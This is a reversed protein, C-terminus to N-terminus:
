MGRLYAVGQAKDVYIGGASIVMKKVTQYPLDALDVEETTTPASEAPSDLFGPAGPAETGTCFASTAPAEPEAAGVMLKGTNIDVERHDTDYHKGGQYYIANGSGHVTGFPHSPNFM